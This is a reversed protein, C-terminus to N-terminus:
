PPFFTINGLVLVLVWHKACTKFELQSSSQVLSVILQNYLYILRQLYVAQLSSSELQNLPPIQQISKRKAQFNYAPLTVSQLSTYFLISQTCHHTSSFLYNVVPLTCSLYLLIRSIQSLCLLTHTFM